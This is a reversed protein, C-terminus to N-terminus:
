SYKKPSFQILFSTKNFNDNNSTNSIEFPITSNKGTNIEENSKDIWTQGNKEMKLDSKKVNIEEKGKWKQDIKGIEKELCNFKKLQNKTSFNINYFRLNNKNETNFKQQNNVNKIHM